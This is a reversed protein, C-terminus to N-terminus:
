GKTKRGVLYKDEDFSDKGERTATEIQEERFEIEELSGVADNIKDLQWAIEKLQRVMYKKRNSLCDKHWSIPKKM